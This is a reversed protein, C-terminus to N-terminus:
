CNAWPRKSSVLALMRCEIQLCRWWMNYEVHMIVLGVPVMQSDMKDTRLNLVIEFSASELTKGLGIKSYSALSQVSVLVDLSKTPFAVHYLNRRSLSRSLDPGHRWRFRSM